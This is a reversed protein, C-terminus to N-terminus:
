GFGKDRPVVGWANPDRQADWLSGTGSKPKRLRQAAGFTDRSRRPGRAQAAGLPKSRRPGLPLPLALGEGGAVGEEWRAYM